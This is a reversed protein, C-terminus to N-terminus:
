ATGTTCLERNQILLWKNLDKFNGEHQKLIAVLNELHGFVVIAETRNEMNNADESLLYSKFIHTFFMGFEEASQMSDAECAWNALAFLLTKVHPPQEQKSM